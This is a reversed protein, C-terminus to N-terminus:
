SARELCNASKSAFWTRLSTHSILSSRYSRSVCWSSARYSRNACRGCPCTRVSRLPDTPGTPADAVQVLESQDSLIQLVQQRIPWMSLNQSIPSSRYSRNACRGCPCARVSRLPDTPGASVRRSPETADTPVGAVHVLESEGFSLIAQSALM